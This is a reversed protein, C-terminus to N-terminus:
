FISKVKVILQKELADQDKEKDLKIKLEKEKESDEKKLM